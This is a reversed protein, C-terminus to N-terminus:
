TSTMIELKAMKLDRRKGIKYSLWPVKMSPPSIEKTAKAEAQKETLGDALLQDMRDAIKQQYKPDEYNRARRVEPFKGNVLYLITCEADVIRLPLEL